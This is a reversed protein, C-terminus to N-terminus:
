NGKMKVLLLQGPDPFYPAVQVPSLLAVQSNRLYEILPINLKL